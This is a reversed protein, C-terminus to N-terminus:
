QHRGKFRGGGRGESGGHGGEQNNSWEKHKWISIKKMSNPRFFSEILFLIWFM